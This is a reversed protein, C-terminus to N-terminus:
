DEKRSQKLGEKVMSLRSIWEDQKGPMVVCVQQNRQPQAYYNKADRMEEIIRELCQFTLEM